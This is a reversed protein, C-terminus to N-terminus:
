PSSSIGAVCNQAGSNIEVTPTRIVGAVASADFNTRDPSAHSREAPELVKSSLWQACEDSGTIAMAADLQKNQHSEPDQKNLAPM